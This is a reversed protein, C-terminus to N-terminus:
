DLADLGGGLRALLHPTDLEMRLACASGEVGDLHERVEERLTASQFYLLAHGPRVDRIDLAVCLYVVLKCVWMRRPVRDSSSSSSIQCFRIYRVHQM